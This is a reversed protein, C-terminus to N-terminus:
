LFFFFLLHAGGWNGDSAMNLEFLFSPSAMSERDLFIVSFLLAETDPQHGTLELKKEGTPEPLHPRPLIIAMPM